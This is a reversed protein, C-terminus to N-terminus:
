MLPISIAHKFYYYYHHYSNSNLFPVLTNSYSYILIISAERTAWSTFFGGWHLLGRNLEQTLFNGQLLSLSGLGTNKPKGRPESLLSDVQLTLSRPETGPNSLDGPPPCPLESWYEQRSFGMPLPAQHVVTWLTVFLWVCSLSEVCCLLVRSLEFSLCYLLIKPNSPIKLTM